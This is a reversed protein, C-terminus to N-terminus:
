IITKEANFAKQVWAGGLKALGMFDAITVGEHWQNPGKWNITLEPDNEVMMYNIINIVNARTDADNRAEIGNYTVIISMAEERYQKLNEKFSDEFLYELYEQETIEEQGEHQPAMFIGIIN